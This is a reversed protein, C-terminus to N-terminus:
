LRIRQSTQAGAQSGAQSFGAQSGAHSGAQLGQLRGTSFKRRLRSPQLRESQTTLSHPHPTSAAGASFPPLAAGAGKGAAGEGL